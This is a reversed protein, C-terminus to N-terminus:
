IAQRRTASSGTGEWVSIAAADGQGIAAELAQAQEDLRDDPHAAFRVHAPTTSAFPSSGSSERYEVQWHPWAVDGM